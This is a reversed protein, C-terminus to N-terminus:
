RSEKGEMQLPGVEESPFIKRTTLRYYILKEFAAFVKPDLAKARELYKNAEQKFREEGTVAYKCAFASCVQAAINPNSPDREFLTQYRALMTDYDKQQFALNAEAKLLLSNIGQDEPYHEQYKRFLRVAEVPHGEGLFQVGRYLSAKLDIDTSEPVYKTASEMLSAAVETKGDRWARNARLSEIYGVLFRYNFVYSLVALTLLVAFMGKVWLPFTREWQTAKCSDCISANGSQGKSGPPLQKQCVSCCVPESERAVADAKSCPGCLSRGATVVMEEVPFLKLCRWCVSQKM